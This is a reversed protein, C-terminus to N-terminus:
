SYENIKELQRAKTAAVDEHLVRWCLWSDGNYTNVQSYGPGHPVVTQDGRKPPVWKM